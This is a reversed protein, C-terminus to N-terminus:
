RGLIMKIENIRKINLSLSAKGKAQIILEEKILEEIAEDLLNFEDSRVGMKLTTIVRHATFRDKGSPWFREM